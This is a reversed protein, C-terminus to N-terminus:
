LNFKSVSVFLGLSAIKYLNERLNEILVLNMKPTLSEFM